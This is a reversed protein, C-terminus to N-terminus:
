AVPRDTHHGSAGVIHQRGEDSVIVTVEHSRDPRLGLVRVEHHTRYEDAPTVLWTRDEDAIELLVRGPEDTSFTLLAALSTHESPQAVVVESVVPPTRDGCGVATGVAVLIVFTPIRVSKLLM